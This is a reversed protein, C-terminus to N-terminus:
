GTAPQNVEIPLPSQCPIGTIVEGKRRLALIAYLVKGQSQECHSRPQHQRSHIQRREPLHGRPGGEQPIGPQHFLGLRRRAPQPPSNPQKRETTRRYQAIFTHPLNEQLAPVGLRSGGARYPTGIWEAANIYLRHNDTLEIDVGLRVSAQALAKYDVRPASTHCSSLCLVLGVFAIIHALPQKM